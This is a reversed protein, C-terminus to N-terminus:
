DSGEEEVRGEARHRKLLAAIDPVTAACTDPAPVPVADVRGVHRMTPRGHPCNWPHDMTALNRVIREMAPRALPKGIM